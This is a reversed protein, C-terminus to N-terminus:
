NSVTRDLRHVLSQLRKYRQRIDGLDYKALAPQDIEEWILEGHRALERMRDRRTTLEALRCLAELLSVVVSVESKAFQRLPAFVAKILDNFNTSRALLRPKGDADIFLSGPLERDMVSALALSFSNVCSIATGPDNIGPSLARAALQNLQTIPYEPDQVSTRVPGTIVHRNLSEAAMDVDDTACGFVKLICIGEVLFDGARIRVQMLCDHEVCWNLLGNYDVAQVYGRNGAAITQPRQGRAAHRWLAIDHCRGELGGESVLEGLAAQLRKGIRQVIEDAQLDTATRHIFNIFGIVAFLAFLLATLVTLNPRDSDTYGTLVVLAYVYAGLFLGLSIKSYNDELFHRIVKPGYQGSTLTLAVMTVSFSVGGVSIVSGAIVSLVQRASDVPMALMPSDVYLNTFHRDVWLMLHGLGFSGSCIVVPIFWISTDLRKRLYQLRRLM